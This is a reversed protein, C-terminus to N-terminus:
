SQVQQNRKIESSAKQDMKSFIRDLESKDQLLHERNEKVLENFSKRKRSM